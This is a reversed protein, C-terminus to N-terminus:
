VPWVGEGETRLGLGPLTAFDAYAIQSHRISAGSHRAIWLDEVFDGTHILIADPDYHAVANASNFEIDNGAIPNGGAARFIAPIIWLSTNGPRVEAAYGVRDGPLYPVNGEGTEVFRRGADLGVNEDPDYFTHWRNNNEDTHIGYFAQSGGGVRIYLAHETANSLECYIVKDAQM